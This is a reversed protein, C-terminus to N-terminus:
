HWKQYAKWSFVATLLRGIKPLICIPGVALLSIRRELCNVYNPHNKAAKDYVPKFITDATEYFRQKISRFRTNKTNGRLETPWLFVATLFYTNKNKQSSMM